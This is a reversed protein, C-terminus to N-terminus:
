KDRQKRPRGRPGPQGAARAGARRADSVRRMEGYLLVGGPGYDVRSPTLIKQLALSQAQPPGPVIDGPEMELVHRSDITSLQASTWFDAMRSELLDCAIGRKYGQQGGRDM